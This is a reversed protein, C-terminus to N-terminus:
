PVACGGIQILNSTVSFGFDAASSNGKLTGAVVVTYSGPETLGDFSAAYPGVHVNGSALDNNNGAFNDAPSGDAFGNLINLVGNAPKRAVAHLPDFVASNGFIGGNGFYSFDAAAGVVALGDNVTDLNTDVNDLDLSALVSSEKMLTASVDRARTLGGDTMTFSYKNRSAQKQFSESAVFGSFGLDVTGGTTESTWATQPDVAQTPTIAYTYTFKWSGRQALPAPSGVNVTVLQTYTGSGLTGGLFFTCRDSQAQQQLELALPAPAAPTAPPTQCGNAGGGTCAVTPAAGNWANTYYSMATGTLDADTHNGRNFTWTITGVIEYAASDPTLNVMASQATQSQASLPAANIGLMFLSCPGLIKSFTKHM